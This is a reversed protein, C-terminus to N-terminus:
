GNKIELEFMSILIDANKKTLASEPAHTLGGLMEPLFDIHHPPSVKRLPIWFIIGLLYSLKLTSDETIENKLTKEDVTIYSYAVALKIAEKVLNNDMLAKSLKFSCGTETIHESHTKDSILTAIIKLLGKLLRGYVELGESSNYIEKCTQKITQHQNISSLDKNRACEILNNMIQIFRRPNGESAKRVTDAGAYFGVKANGPEQLKKMVRPYLIPTFKRYIPKEFKEPFRKYDKFSIKREPSLHSILLKMIDDKDCAQDRRILEFKFFDLQTRGEKTDLFNELTIEGDTILESLRTKCIHNTLQEYEKNEPDYDIKIYNFDNGDPEIHTGSQLTEKTSHKYPLTAMKIVVPDQSSRLFTNIAKIYKEQLFEAEDICFVWRCDRKINLQNRILNIVSKIPTLLPAFLPSDSITQCNQIHYVETYDILGEISTIQEQYLVNSILKSVRYNITVSDDESFKDNILTLVETLLSKLAICNFSFDFFKDRKSEYSEEIGSMFELNLPLYICFYDLEQVLEKAKKHELKSLFSYCMMKLLMTKGSGRTGLLIEHQENFLSWFLSTPYFENITKKPSYGRAQGERFPNKSNHSILKEKDSM